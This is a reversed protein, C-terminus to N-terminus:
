TLHQYVREQNTSVMSRVKAYLSQHIPPNPSATVWHFPSNTIHDDNYMAIRYELCISERARHWGPSITEREQSRHGPRELSHLLASSALAAAYLDLASASGFVAM